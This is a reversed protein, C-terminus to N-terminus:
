AQTIQRTINFGNGGGSGGSTIYYAPYPLVWGSTPTDAVLVAKVIQGVGSPETTTIAGPIITSLFYTASPVLGIFTEVYGAQTLEFSDIDIVNSVIGVIEGDYTGDAIAKNYTGGSVGIVDGILFGHSPLIIIKTVSSGGGTGGSGNFNGTFLFAQRTLLDITFTAM